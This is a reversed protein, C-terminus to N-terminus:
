DLRELLQQAQQYHWDTNGIQLLRIKAEENQKNLLHALSQYWNLEEGFRNGAARSQEFQRIAEPYKNKLLLALGYYYRDEENATELNQFYQAAKGYNKSNFSRIALTRTRDEDVPGKSAGPHLIEQESLYNQALMRADTPTTDFFQITIILGICAAAALLIKLNRSSLAKKGEITKSSPIGYDRDLITQWKGKLDEDLKEKIVEGLIADQEKESIDPNLLRKLRNIM